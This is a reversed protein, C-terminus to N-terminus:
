RGSTERRRGHVNDFGENDGGQSSHWGEAVGSELSHFIGRAKCQGKHSVVNLGQICDMIDWLTALDTEKILLDLNGIGRPAQAESTGGSEGAEAPVIGILQVQVLTELPM